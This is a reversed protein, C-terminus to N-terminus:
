AEIFYAPMPLGYDYHWAVRKAFWAMRPNEIAWACYRIPRIISVGLDMAHRRSMWRPRLKLALMAAQRENMATGWCDFTDPCVLLVM